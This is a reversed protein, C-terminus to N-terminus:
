MGEQQMLKMPKSAHVFFFPFPVVSGSTYRTLVLQDLEEVRLVDM